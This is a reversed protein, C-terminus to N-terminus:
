IYTLHSIFFCPIICYFSICCGKERVPLSAITNLFGIYMYMYICSLRVKSYNKKEVGYGKVYLYGMGNYASFLRQSALTLWELAKTYNREVGAGRAYMEGLLEMSKPEGKEVAKLFWSLAKARDRRLGRLGFYYFIGIKYMAAANGKQAQYELIQFDEDEEGRSKRLADKNEEAGNHLRVPEMVPSDKSILFSNVAIEALEAYLVVAKDHMQFYVIVLSMFLFTLVIFSSRHHNQQTEMCLKSCKISYLKEMTCKSIFKKELTETQICLFSLLSVNLFKLM